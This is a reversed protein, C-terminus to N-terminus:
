GQPFSVENHKGNSPSLRLSLYLFAGSIKITKPNGMFGRIASIEFKMFILTKLHGQGEFWAKWAWPHQALARHEFIHNVRLAKLERLTIRSCVQALQGGGRRTALNALLRLFSPKESKSISWHCIGLNMQARVNPFRYKLINDTSHNLDWARTFCRAPSNLLKLRDWSLGDKMFIMFIMFIM